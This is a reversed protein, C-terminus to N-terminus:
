LSIENCKVMQKILEILLNVMLLCYVLLQLLQWYQYNSHMLMYVHLVSQLGHNM